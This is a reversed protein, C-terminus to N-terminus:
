RRTKDDSPEDSPASTEGFLELYAEVEGPEPREPKEAGAADAAADAQLARRFAHGLQGRAGLHRGREYLARDSTVLTIDSPSASRRITELIADDASIGRGSHRVTVGGLHTTAGWGELPEGDFFVTLKCRRSRTFAALVSVFRRRDSAGNMSLGPTQALLNNGDVIYPM